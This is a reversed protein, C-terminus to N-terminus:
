GKKNLPAYSLGNTLKKRLRTIPRTTHNKSLTCSTALEIRADGRKKNQSFFPEVPIQVRIVLILVKPALWNCSLVQNHPVTDSHNLLQNQFGIPEARVLEFRTPTTKKKNQCRTRTTLSTSEFDVPSQGRSNLDRRQRKELFFCFFCFVFVFVFLLLCFM